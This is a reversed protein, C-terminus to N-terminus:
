EEAPIPELRFYTGVAAVHRRGARYVLNAPFPQQSTAKVVADREACDALEIARVTIRRRNRVVTATGAAVLNQVWQSRGNPHGVYWRGESRLVTLPYRRDIGSRRGVIVVEAVPLPTPRRALWLMLRNPALRFLLRFAGAWSTM